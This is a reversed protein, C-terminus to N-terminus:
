KVDRLQNTAFGAIGFVAIWGAFVALAPGVSEASAINTYNETFLISALPEFASFASAAAQVLTEAVFLWVLPLAVAAISNRLFSGLGIGVASVTVAMALAAWVPSLDEFDVSGGFVSVSAVILAFGVFIAVIVFTTLVVFKAALSQWRGPQTVFAQATMHNKIDSTTRSACFSVAIATFILFGDLLSAWPSPGSSYNESDLLGILVVPGFLSGILLVFYVATSRLTSQKIVESRLADLM